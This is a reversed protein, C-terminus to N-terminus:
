SEEDIVEKISVREVFIPTLDGVYSGVVNFDLFEYAEEQTMGDRRMLVKACKDYDYVAIDNSGARHGIGIFARSFGDALLM